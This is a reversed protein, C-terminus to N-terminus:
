SREELSDKEELTVIAKKFAVTEGHRGRQRSKKPKVQITNVSVVKVNRERYIEEIAWAIEQKNAARDVIFVYKPLKFAALSPNSTADKLTALTQSKETAHPHKVIQYPNKTTM